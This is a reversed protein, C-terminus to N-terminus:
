GVFTCTLKLLFGSRLSYAFKYRRLANKPHLHRKRLRLGIGNKEQMTRTFLPVGRGIRRSLGQPIRGIGEDEEGRGGETMGKMIGIIDRLGTGMIGIRRKRTITKIRATTEIGRMTELHGGGLGKLIMMDIISRAEQIVIVSENGTVTGNVNVNMIVQMRTLMATGRVLRLITGNGTESKKVSVTGETAIVNETGIGRANVSVSKALRLNKVSEVRPRVVM